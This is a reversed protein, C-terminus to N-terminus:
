RLLGKRQLWAFLLEDLPLTTVLPSYVMGRAACFRQWEGQWEGLEARYRALLEYDASIEVPAADEADLLKFDGELVPEAEEPALIHIVTVEFGRGGLAKLGEQWDDDMLDSLLLL